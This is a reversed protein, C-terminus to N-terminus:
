QSEHSRPSSFEKALDLWTKINQPLVQREEVLFQEMQTRTICQVNSHDQGLYTESTAFLYVAIEDLAYDDKNLPVGGSKVQAAATTGSERHVLFYEFRATGKKCTSPILLYGRDYQLYLGVVDEIDDASLLSWLNPSQVSLSYRNEGVLRNFAFESFAVLTREEPDIRQITMGKIFRSRIGGPVADEKGVRLWECPRGQCIAKEKFEPIHGYYQWNGTVRGLFYDGALDKAWCLDDCNMRYALANFAASWGRLDDQGYRQARALREYEQRDLGQDLGDVFGWEVGLVGKQICVHTQDFGEEKAREGRAHLRWIQTM